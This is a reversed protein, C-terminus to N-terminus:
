QFARVAGVQVAVKRCHQLFDALVRFLLQQQALQLLFFLVAFLPFKRWAANKISDHMSGAIDEKPQEEAAAHDKKQLQLASVATLIRAAVKLRQVPSSSKRTSRRSTNSRRGNCVSCSGGEKACHKCGSCNTCATCNGGTCKGGRAEVMGPLSLVCILISFFIKRIM